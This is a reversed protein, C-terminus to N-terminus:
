RGRSFGGIWCDTHSPGPLVGPDRRVVAPAGHAASSARLEGPGLVTVARRPEAGVALAEREQAGALVLRRLQVHDREVAALRQLQRLVLGADALEEPLGVALRQDVDRPTVLGFLVLRACPAADRPQTVSPVPDAEEGGSRGVEVPHR